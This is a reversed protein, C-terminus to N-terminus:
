KKKIQKDIWHSLQTTIYMGVVVGVGFTIGIILVSFITEM